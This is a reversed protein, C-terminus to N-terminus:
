NRKRSSAMLSYIGVIGWRVLFHLFTQISFQGADECAAEYEEKFQITFNQGSISQEHWRFASLPDGKICHSGGGHWLRLFFEPKLHLLLHM